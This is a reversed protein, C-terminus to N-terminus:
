AEALRKAKALHPVLREDSMFERVGCAACYFNLGGNKSRGLPRWADCYPCQVTVGTPGSTKTIKM